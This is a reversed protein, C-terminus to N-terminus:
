NHPSLARGKVCAPVAFQTWEGQTQRMKWYKGLVDPALCLRRNVRPVGCPSTILPFLTGDKQEAKWWTRGGEWLLGPWWASTASTGGM